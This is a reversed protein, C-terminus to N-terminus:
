HGPRYKRKSRIPVPGPETWTTHWGLGGKGSSWTGFMTQVTIPNADREKIWEALAMTYERWTNRQPGQSTSSGRPTKSM